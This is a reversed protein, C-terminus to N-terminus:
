KDRFKQIIYYIIFFMFAPLLIVILDDGLYNNFLLNIAIPIALIIAMALMVNNKVKKSIM